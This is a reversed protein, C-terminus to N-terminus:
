PAHHEVRHFGVVHYRECSVGHQPDMHGGDLQRGHRVHVAPAPLRIVAEPTQHPAVVAQTADHEVSRACADSVYTCTHVIYHASIEIGLAIM